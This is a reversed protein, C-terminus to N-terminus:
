STLALAMVSWNTATGNVIQRLVCGNKCTLRQYVEAGRALVEVVAYQWLAGVQQPPSACITASTTRYIGPQTCTDLNAVAGRYVMANPQLEKLKEETLVTGVTSM